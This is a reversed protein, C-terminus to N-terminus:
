KRSINYPKIDNYLGFTKYCLYTSFTGYDIECKSNNESKSEVICHLMPVFTDLFHCCVCRQKNSNIKKDWQVRESAQARIITNIRQTNKVLYNSSCNEVRIMM